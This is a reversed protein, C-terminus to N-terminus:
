EHLEGAEQAQPTAVLGATIMKIATSYGSKFSKETEFFHRDELLKRYEEALKWLDPSLTEQMKAQHAKIARDYERSQQSRSWFEPEFQGYYLDHLFKESNETPVQIMPQPRSLVDAIGQLAKILEPLQHEFFRRGAVTEYFNM